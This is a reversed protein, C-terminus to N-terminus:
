GTVAGTFLNGVFSTTEEVLNSTVLARGATNVGQQILGAALVRTLSSAGSNNALANLPALTTMNLTYTWIMNKDLTQTVTIGNPPIAVLYSEGLALNYFYLRFPQGNLDVGNAKNAIAKLIRIAGYGTKVAVNFFPPRFVITSTRTNVQTLDYVGRATSFAVASESPEKPSILIKFNRGFDGKIQIEQPVYSDSTLVTVGSNTKKINTRTPESKTIQDPMIPFAFYDITEGAGNTLELAMLYVEIDFPYLASLAARGVNNILQNYRNNAAEVPM